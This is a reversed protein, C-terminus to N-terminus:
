VYKFIHQNNKHRYFQYVQYCRHSDTTSQNFWSHQVIVVTLNGPYKLYLCISIQTAILFIYDATLRKDRSFVIHSDVFYAIVQLLLYYVFMSFFPFLEPTSSPPSPFPTTPFLFFFFVLSLFPTFFIPHFLFYCHLLKRLAKGEIHSLASHFPGKLSVRVWEHLNAQELKSVIM